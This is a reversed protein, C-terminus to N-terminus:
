LIFATKQLPSAYGIDHLYAAEILYPQDDEPLIKAIQYAREVGGQVHEWRKGLPNLLKFAQDNAWHVMDLTTNM